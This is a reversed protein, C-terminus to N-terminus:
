NSRWFLQVFACLCARDQLLFKACVWSHRRLCNDSMGTGLRAWHLNGLFLRSKTGLRTINRFASRCSRFATL